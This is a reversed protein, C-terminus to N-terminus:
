AIEHRRKVAIFSGLFLAFGPISLWGGRTLGRPWYTITYSNNAKWSVRWYPFLGAFERAPTGELSWNTSYAQNVVLWGQFDEVPRFTMSRSGIQEVHVVPTQAIEAQLQALLESPRETANPSNLKGFPVEPLLFARPLVDELVYAGPAVARLGRHNDLSYGEIRNVGVLRLADLQSSSPTPVHYAFLPHSPEFHRLVFSQYRRNIVPDFVGFHEYGLHINANPMTASLVRPRDSQPMTAAVDGTARSHDEYSQKRPFYGLPHIAVAQAIFLLILAYWTRHDDFRYLLLATFAAVFISTGTVQLWELQMRRNPIHSISLGSDISFFLLAGLVCGATLGAASLITWRRRDPPLATLRELGAAIAIGLTVHIFLNYKHFKLGNVVPINQVFDLVSPQVTKVLALVSVLSFGLVAYKLRPNATETRLLSGMIAGFVLLVGVTTFDAQPLGKRRLMGIRSSLLPDVATFTPTPLYWSDSQTLHNPFFGNIRPLLWSLSWRLPPGELSRSSNEVTFLNGEQKSLLYPLVAVSGVLLAAMMCSACIVASKKHQWGKVGILEITCGAFVTCLSIFFDQINGATMGALLSFFLLAVYKTAAHGRLLQISSYLMWPLWVFGRYHVMNVNAYTVGSLGILIAVAAAIEKRSYLQFLFFLGVVLIYVHLLSFIDFYLPRTTDLLLLLLNLPYLAGPQLSELFPAGMGNQLNVVPLEGRALINRILVLWAEDQQSAAWPDAVPWSVQAGIFTPDATTALPNRALTYGYFTIPYYALAPAVLLLAWLLVDRGCISVKWGTAISTRTPFPKVLRLVNM